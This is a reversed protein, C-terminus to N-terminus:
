EPTQKLQKLRHIQNEVRQMDTRIAGEAEMLAAKKQDILNLKAQLFQMEEHLDKMTKLSTTTM